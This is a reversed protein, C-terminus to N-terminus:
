HNKKYEQHKAVESEIREVSIGLAEEREDKLDL